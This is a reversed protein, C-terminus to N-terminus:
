AVIKLANGFFSSCVGYTHRISYSYPSTEYDPVLRFGHYNEVKLELKVDERLVMEFLSGGGQMSSYLGCANGKPIIIESLDFGSECLEKLSVTAIYTLLNAGCCSNLLEQYFHEYSVQEKGNRSKKDPFRGVLKEGHSAMIEKVKAPNLNLADVMDGFYSEEYSYGGSELWHSNICDYNSLMEVRVPINDTHDILEKLPDSDDRERITEKIEEEHGAFFEEVERDTFGDRICDEKLEEFVNNVAEWETEEYWENVKELLPTDSKERLCKQILDQQGNLNDRYDVWVLQYSEEMWSKVTEISLKKMEEM